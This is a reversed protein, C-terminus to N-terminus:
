RGPGNRRTWRAQSNAIKQPDMHAAVINTVYTNGGGGGLKHNPVINGGSSGMQLLEPGEEGVIYSEGASVPGGAARAGSPNSPTPLGIGGRATISVQMTRNRTMINLRNEMEAIEGRDTLEVLTTIQDPLLGLQNGYAIVDQKLQNVALAQRRMGSEATITGADIAAKTENFSATVDDIQQALNLFAQENSLDGTLADLEATYARLADESRRHADALENTRDRLTQAKRQSDEMAEAAERTAKNQEYQRTYADVVAEYYEETKIRTLNLEDKLEGMTGTVGSTMQGLTNLVSGMPKGVKEIFSIGLPLIEAMGSILPALSATLQGVALTVEDMADSLADQALRMEEAKRAEEETIVQGKEVAGLMQEYEARTKGVIPALSAYGKGFLDNGIRARETKNATEGLVELADLFVDNADRANGAADRTAIGYREWKGSDLTKGIKGIGTELEKASIGADDAVARWRSFAETSLGTAAAGDIATKAMDIFADNAHNLASFLAAGGAVIAGGAAALGQMSSMGIAAAGGIGGPGMLKNLGPIKGTLQQFSGMLGTTTGGLGSLGRQAQNTDATVQVKIEPNAM